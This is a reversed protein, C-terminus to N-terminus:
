SKPVIKWIESPTTRADPKFWPSDQIHSTTIYLDGDAGQSFTDPWRLKADSVLTTLTGGPTGIEVANTEPNSVYLRGAADMWLGDAVHTKSVEKVQAHLRGLSLVPHRLDSTEISYLTRGTLAQWYLMKGDPSIAIGDAAFAPSRGDPRRLEKDDAQVVVSKELQTTVDGDLVRSGKGSKLDVVILSGRIGSDTLYATGSDPSFRIDNLYSGPIAVDDALHVVQTVKNTRVDIKVLKPAGALPGQQGPSGADVVWLNGAPDFVVSQVCVFTRDLPKPAANRYGNWTEDPYPVIKGDRVEGVSIPVDVTWRPLNVFMRGDAAVALGTIQQDPFAAVRELTAGRSYDPAPIPKGTTTEGAALATGAALVAVLSASAVLRTVLPSAPM